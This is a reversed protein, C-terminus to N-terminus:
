MDESVLRFGIDSGLFDTQSWNWKGAACDRSRICYAGGRYGRDGGLATSTWEMVNGHMDYLGWANPEKQAVPHTEEGSNGDYWGMVDLPGEQGNKRKGWDGKGGARCCYEWEEETPLRFKVNKSMANLKQIFRQCDNWSVQEVPLNPGKFYSPNDGMVRQWMAQTVETRGMKFSRGPIAVMSDCISKVPNAVVERLMMPVSGVLGKLAAAKEQDVKALGEADVDGIRHSMYLNNYTATLADVEHGIRGAKLSVSFFVQDLPSSTKERAECLEEYLRVSQGREKVLLQYQAFTEPMFKAAFASQKGELEKIAPPKLLSDMKVIDIKLPEEDLKALEESTIVGAKHRFYLHALEDKQRKYEEAATRLRGMVKECVAYTDSGKAVPEPFEENFVQNLEKATDRAKEYRGFANPLFEEAFTEVIRTGEESCITSITKLEKWQEQPSKDYAQAGFLSCFALGVVLCMRKM